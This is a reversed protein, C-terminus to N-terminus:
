FLDENHLYIKMERPYRDLFPIAPDIIVEHKFAIFIVFDDELNNIDNQREVFLSHFNCCNLSHEAGISQIM